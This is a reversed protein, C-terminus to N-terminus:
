GNQKLHQKHQYRVSVAIQDVVGHRAQPLSCHVSIQFSISFYRDAHYLYLEDHDRMTAVNIYNKNMHGKRLILQTKMTQFLAETIESLLVCHKNIPRGSRLLRNRFFKKVAFGGVRCSTATKRSLFSGRRRRDRRHGSCLRASQRVLASTCVLLTLFMPFLCLIRFPLFCFSHLPFITSTM